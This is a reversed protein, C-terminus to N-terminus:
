KKQPIVASVRQESKFFVDVRMGPMVSPTGELQITVELVEADLQQRPGQARLGPSGVSPAIETVKGTFEMEAFANSRVIVSQGLRVKSVDREPVEATIQVATMDGISAFAAPQDPSAVEGVKADFRLLTGGVPARVRRNEYAIEALRLDARALTLGSDLRTPLPMDAKATVLTLADAMAVVADEATKIAKRAADLDVESAREARRDLFVSDYNMRAKHLNREADALEDAAKRRDLVLQKKEKEEDREGLRVAVEARAQTLRAQADDDRLRAIMDGQRVVDGAAAFIEVIRGKAEPRMRVEGGKPEVRGPASTAWVVNSMPKVSVATASSEGATTGTANSSLIEPVKRPTMSVILGTLGIAALGAVLLTVTTKDFVRGESKPEHNPM